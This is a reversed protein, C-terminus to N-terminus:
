RRTLHEVLQDFSFKTSRNNCRAGVIWSDEVVQLVNTTVLLTLKYYTPHTYPPGYEGLTTGALATMWHTCLDALPHHIAQQNFLM